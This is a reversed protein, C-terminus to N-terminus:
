KGAFVKEMAAEIVDLGEILQEESIMLPPCFKLAAGALGVPAFLLLGQQVCRNVIAGATDGDPELSDKGKVLQVAGVLGISAAKGVHEPFNKEWLEMRYKLVKGLRESNGILDEEILLKLNALAAACAIPNGAHTSTTSVPAFLSMWKANGIVASLPMGSSFGKGCVILDAKVGYHQYTFTKGSRGFGAQVEDFILLIQHEDCFERLRSMYEQPFLLATGGQFPELCVAAIKGHEVNREGLSWLFGDFSTDKGRFGDPVPVSVMTPDHYMIWAKQEAIGGAMQSGMTRGHFDGHFSVITNKEAGGNKHAYARSTKLAFEMAESGTTLLAIMDLNSPVFHDVMYEILAAREANPFCFTHHLPRRAAEVIAVEAERRGHGANAVLVGSTFDLWQNGWRDFVHVGEARDWVVPPQGAMSVPEHRQLVELIPESEPVPIATQIRRNKTEVKEVAVPVFEYWRGM